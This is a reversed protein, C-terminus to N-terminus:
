SQGKKRSSVRANESPATAEEDTDKAKQWGAALWDDAQDDPVEKSMDSYPHQIRMATEERQAATM